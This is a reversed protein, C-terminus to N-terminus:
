IFKDDRIPIKFVSSTRASSKNRARSQPSSSLPGTFRKSERDFHPSARGGVADQLQVTRILSKFKSTM